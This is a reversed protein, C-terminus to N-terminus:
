VRAFVLPPFYWDSVLLAFAVVNIFSCPAVVDCTCFLSVQVFLFCYCQALPATM